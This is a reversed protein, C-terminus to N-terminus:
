KAPSVRLDTRTTSARQLKAYKLNQARNSKLMMFSRAAREICLLSPREREVVIKRVVRDVFDIRNGQEISTRDSMGIQSFSCEFSDYRVIEVVSNQDIAM